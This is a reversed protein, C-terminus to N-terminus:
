AKESQSLREWDPRGDKVTPLELINKEGSAGRPKLVKPTVDVNGSEIGSGGPEQNM